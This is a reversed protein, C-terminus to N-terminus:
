FNPITAVRRLRVFRVTHYVVVLVQRCCRLMVSVENFFCLLVRMLADICCGVVRRSAENRRRDRGVSFTTIRNAVGQGQQHSPEGSSSYSQAM